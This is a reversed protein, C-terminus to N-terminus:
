PRINWGELTWQEGDHVFISLAGTAMKLGHARALSDPDPCLHQAFRAIGNSTVVMVCQGPRTHIMDTAFTTWGDIITAPRPSWDAPMVGNKEWDQLAAEGLRAIVHDETQNEDPGYDIENLFSLTSSPTNVQATELALAGTRMTRQLTSTFVVDPTYANTAIYHGIARAQDEGKATLPLDTRCGVRRPPEGSEFTNGHRAIILTTRTM